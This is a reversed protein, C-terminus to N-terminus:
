KCLYHFRLAVLFLSPIYNVICRLFFSIIVRSSRHCAILSVTLGVYMGIVDFQDGLCAHKGTKLVTQVRQWM